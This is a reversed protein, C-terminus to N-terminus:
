LELELPLLMTAGPLERRPVHKVVLDRIENWDARRLIIFETDGPFEEALMDATLDRM